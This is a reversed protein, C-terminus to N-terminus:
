HSACVVALSMVLGRTARVKQLDEFSKIRLDSAQWSRGVEVGEYIGGLPLFKLFPSNPNNERFDELSVYPKKAPATGSALAAASAAKQMRLSTQGGKHRTVGVAQTTAKGAAEANAALPEAVATSFVRCFRFFFSAM